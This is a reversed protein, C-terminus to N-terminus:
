SSPPAKPRSKRKSLFTIAIIAIIAISGVWGFTKLNGLHTSRNHNLSNRIKYIKLFLTVAFDKIRQVLITTFSHLQSISESFNLLPWGHYSNLAFM